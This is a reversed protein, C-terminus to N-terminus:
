VGLPALLHEMQQMALQPYKVLEAWNANRFDDVLGLWGNSIIVARNELLAAIIETYEINHIARDRITIAKFFLAVLHRKLHPAANTYTKHLDDTLGMLRSFVDINDDRKEELTKLQKELQGLEIRIEDSMRQYADAEIVRDARDTEVNQRRTKLKMIRNQIAKGQKDVGNHTEDLIEKAKAVIKEMLPVTFEIKKFQDAIMAELLDARMNQGANSHKQKVLSCHYYAANKKEHVEATYRDGCIGCRLIPRLFFKDSHKRERNANQNKAAKVAQCLDFTAQDVIAEHNGKYMEGKYRMMGTYFPDGLMKIFKSNAMRKGPRSQLGKAFMLTNLNNHNYQGTAYLRFAESILHRKSEDVQIVRRVKDGDALAINQYGPKAKHPWGGNKVKQLMGNKTKKSYHKSYYENIDSIISDMLEDDPEESESFPQNVALLKCGHQQLLRKVQKHDVSNRAFRDTESVLFYNIENEMVYELAEKFATRGQRTTASRGADVFVKEIDIDRRAATERCASEQHEPSQGKAQRSHSVRCYIIGTNRAM